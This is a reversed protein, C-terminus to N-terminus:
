IAHGDPAGKTAGAALTRLLEAASWPCARDGMVWHRVTRPSVHLMKAAVTQGGVQDCLNRVYDAPVPDPTM